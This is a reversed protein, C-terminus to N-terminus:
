RPIRELLALVEDLSYAISTFGLRALEKQEPKVSGAAVKGLLGEGGPAKLEIGQFIGVGFHAQWSPHSIFTDPTGVTSNGGTPYFWHGCGCPCQVKRRWKGVELVKYGLRPLDRVVDAQVQDETQLRAAARRIGAPMKSPPTLSQSLRSPM